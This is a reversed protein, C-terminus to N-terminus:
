LKVNEEAVDIREKFKRRSAQLREYYSVYLCEQVELWRREVINMNNIDTDCGAADGAM